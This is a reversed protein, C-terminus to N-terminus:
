SVLTELLAWCLNNKTETIIANHKTESDFYFASTFREEPKIKLGGLKIIEIPIDFVSSKSSKIDKQNESGESNTTVNERRISLDEQSVGLKPITAEKNM